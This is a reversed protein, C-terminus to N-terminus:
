NDIAKVVRIGVSEVGELQQVRMAQQIEIRYIGSMPFRGNKKFLVQVDKNKGLGKGIWDGKIDALFVETTDISYQGNPLNTKIFFYLNAFPYDTTNRINLYINYPNLTDSINLEFTAHDNANWPNNVQENHDYLSQTGCSSSGLLVLLNILV